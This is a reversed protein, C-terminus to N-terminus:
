GQGSPWCGHPVSTLYPSINYADALGSYALAYNPDKEIAQEFFEISKKL